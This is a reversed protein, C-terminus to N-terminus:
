GSSGGTTTRDRMRVRVDSSETARVGLAEYLRVMRAAILFRGPM